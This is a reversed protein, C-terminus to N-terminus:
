VIQVQCDSFIKSLLLLYPSSTNLRASNKSPTDVTITSSTCWAFASTRLFKSVRLRFFAGIRQPSVPVIGFSFNSNSAMCALMPGTM